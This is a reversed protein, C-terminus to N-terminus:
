AIRNISSESPSLITTVSSILGSAVHLCSLQRYTFANLPTADFYYAHKIVGAVAMFGVGVAALPADVISALPKGILTGVGLARTALHRSLSGAKTKSTVYNQAASVQDQVFSLAIGTGSHFFASNDVNSIRELSPNVLLPISFVCKKISSELSLTNTLLSEGAERISKKFPCTVVAKTLGYAHKITDPVVGVVNRIVNIYAM